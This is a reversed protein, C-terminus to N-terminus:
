RFLRQVGSWTAQQVASVAACPTPTATNVFCPSTQVCHIQYPFTCETVLPCYFAPILPPDRHTLDFTVDSVTDSALVLVSYMLFPSSETPCSGLRASNTGAGFPDGLSLTSPNPVPYVTWAPPLGTFRFEAGSINDTGPAPRAVIYINKPAGPLITGSCQTGEPDFYVGLRVDLTTPSSYRGEGAVSTEFMVLLVNAVILAAVVPRRSFVRSRWMVLRRQ